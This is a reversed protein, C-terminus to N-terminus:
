FNVGIIGLINMIDGSPTIGTPHDTQGPVNVRLEQNEDSFTLFYYWAQLGIFMDNRFIPVEIGFGLDFGNTSDKAIASQGAVSITRDTKSFGALIYPNLDALGRTVNQTNFYYKMSGSLTSLNLLGTVDQHDRVPISLSHDGSVYSIQMAFRLDFFYSLFLGVNAGSAYIDGYNGTFNRVGALFGINVFRGNRFFNIDAEEESGTDFDSYDAFPDYFDTGSFQATAVSGSFLSFILILFGKSLAPKHMTTGKASNDSLKLPPKLSM